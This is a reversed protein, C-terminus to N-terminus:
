RDREEASGSAPWITIWHGRSGGDRPPWMTIWKSPWPQRKWPRRHREPMPGACSERGVTSTRVTPPPPLRATAVHCSVAVARRRGDIGRTQRDPPFQTCPTDGRPGSPSRSRRTRRRRARSAVAGVLAPGAKGSRRSPQEDRPRRRGGWARARPPRRSAGAREGALPDRM